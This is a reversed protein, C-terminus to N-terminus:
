SHGTLPSELSLSHDETRETQTFGIADEVEVGLVTPSHGRDGLSDALDLRTEAAPELRERAHLEDEV